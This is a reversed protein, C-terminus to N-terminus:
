RDSQSFPPLASGKERRIWIALALAVAVTLLMAGSIMLPTFPWVALQTTVSDAILCNGDPAFCRLQIPQGLPIDGYVEVDDYGGRIDDIRILSRNPTYRSGTAAQPPASRISHGTVLRGETSLRILNPHSIFTEVSLVGMGAISLLWALAPGFTVVLYKSRTLPPGM